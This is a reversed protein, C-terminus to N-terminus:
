CGATYDVGKIGDKLGKEYGHEIAEELASRLWDVDQKFAVKLKQNLIEDKFSDIEKFGNRECYEEIKEEIFDM